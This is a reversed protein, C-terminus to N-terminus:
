RASRTLFLKQRVTRGGGRAVVIYVGNAVDSGALTWTARLEGPEGAERFGDARWVQRGAFDYVRVDVGGPPANPVAFTVSAGRVPNESPLLALTSTAPVEGAAGHAVLAIEDLRWPLDIGTFEVQVQRGAVGGLTVTETYFEPADGRVSGEVQWTAGGDRSVRVEGHPTRDADPTPVPAFPDGRYSTWFVVSLTDVTAPVAVVPSRVYGSGALLQWARSGAVVATAAVAFGAASWGSEGAEAGSAALVDFGAGEAGASVLVRGPRGAVPTSVLRDTYRGIGVEDIQAALASPAGITTTPAVEAPVRVRVTPAVSEIAVRESALGTTPSRYGRPDRAAELVDLAFPLNDLFVRDLAAEDDYFEFGYYSEGQPTVEFGSTLEPTFALTGYRAYAWDTYEGNTPYLNWGPGPHYRDRSSRPVRDLVSPREDTGALARFIGLDSPLLGSAYGLPYLVLGTFTHYSVSLVPPHEAHFQEVAQVEPESAPAPGRYLESTPAPSSGVDDRGWQYSHNRNLDVGVVEGSPLRARNKRWLRDSVFTYQYGDPNVVPVVWVDRAAVLTDVRVRTGPAFDAPRADAPAPDALLRLLRLAMETAAWERAHYTAMYLVNPRSPSDDPAGVKAALIPRGEVSVGLTDLHVVDPHAAALSDLFVRVGRAPDDFSRYVTPPAQAPTRVATDGPVVREPARRASPTAVVDSTIGLARLRARMVSDAVIYVAGGRQTVVDAGLARLSDARVGTIRLTVHPASTAAPSPVGQSAAVRPATQLGVGVALPFGLRLLRRWFRVREGTRPSDGLAPLAAIWCRDAEAFTRGVAAAWERFRLFRVDDPSAVAAAQAAALADLTAYLPEALEALEAALARRDAPQEPFREAAFESLTRDLRARLPAAGFAAVRGSPNVAEEARRRAGLLPAFFRDHDSGPNARGSGLARLRLTQEPFACAREAIRAGLNAIDRPGSLELLDGTSLYLTLQTAELRAGDIGGYAVVIARERPAGAPPAAGVNPAAGAVLLTLAADAPEAWGRGVIEAGRYLGHVTVPFRVAAAADHPTSEGPPHADPM